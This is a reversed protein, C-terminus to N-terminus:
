DKSLKPVMGTYIGSVVYSHHHVDTTSWFYVTEPHKDLESYASFVKMFLIVSIVMTFCQEFNSVQHSTTAITTHYTLATKTIALM